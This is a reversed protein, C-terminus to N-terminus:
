ASERVVLETPLVTQRRFRGPQAIEKLLLQVMLRGMEETPQRVSTLPPDTHRGVVSDD